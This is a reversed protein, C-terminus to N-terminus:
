EKSSTETEGNASAVVARRLMKLREGCRKVDESARDVRSFPQFDMYSMDKSSEKAILISSLFASQVPIPLTMATKGGSLHSEEM